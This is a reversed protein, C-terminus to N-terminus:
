LYNSYHKNKIFISMVGYLLVLNMGYAGGFVSSAVTALVAFFVLASINIGDINGLKIFLYPLLLFLPISFVGYVALIYTFFSESSASITEGNISDGVVMERLIESGNGFPRDFFLSLHYGWLWERGSTIDPNDIKLLGAMVVPFAFANILEGIFPSLYIFFISMVLLPLWAHKLREKLIKSILISLITLGLSFILARSGSFIVFYLLAFIIFYFSVNKKHLGELYALLTLSALAGTLHISSGPYGIHVKWENIELPFFAITNGMSPQNVDALQNANGTIIWIFSLLTCLAFSFLIGNSNPKFKLFVGLMSANSLVLYIYWAGDRFNNVFGFLLGTLILLIVPKSLLIWRSHIIALLIVSATIIHPFFDGLSSKILSDITGIFYYLFFLFTFLINSKVIKYKLDLGKRKAIDM